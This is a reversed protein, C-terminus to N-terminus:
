EGGKQTAAEIVELLDDVTRIPKTKGNYGGELGKKGCDNECIYWDIWGSDDRLACALARTQNNLADAWSDFLRGTVDGFLCGLDGMIKKFRKEDRIRRNLLIRKEDRTM